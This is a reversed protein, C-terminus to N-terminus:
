EKSDKSRSLKPRKAQPPTEEIFSVPDDAMDTDVALETEAEGQSSQLPSSCQSSSSQLDAAVEVNSIIPADDTFPGLVSHMLNFHPWTVKKVEKAGAGSRSREHLAQLTKKYKDKANKFKSACQKGSIGCVEGIKTWTEDKLLSNKFDPHRKNFLFEHERICDLLKELKFSGAM